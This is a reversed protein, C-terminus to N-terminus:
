VKNENRPKESSQSKFHKKLDNYEEIEKGKGHDYWSILDENSKSVKEKNRLISSFCWNEEINSSKRSNM